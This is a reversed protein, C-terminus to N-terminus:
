PRVEVHSVVGDADPPAAQAAKCAAFRIQIAQLLDLDVPDYGYGLDEFDSLGADTFIQHAEHASLYEPTIESLKDLAERAAEKTIADSRRADLIRENLQGHGQEPQWSRQLFKQAIYSRSLQGAFWGENYGWYSIVGHQRPCWDGMIVIGERSFILYCSQARGGQPPKLYYARLAHAEDAGDPVLTHLSWLDIMCQTKAKEEVRSM